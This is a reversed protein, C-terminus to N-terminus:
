LGACAIPAVDVHVVTQRDADLALNVRHICTYVIARDRVRTCTLAPAASKDDCAFGIQALQDVSASLSMGDTLRGAVERRLRANDEPAMGACAGLFVPLVFAVSVM